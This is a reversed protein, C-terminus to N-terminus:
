HKVAALISKVAIFLHFFVVGVPKYGCDTWRFSQVCVDTADKMLSRRRRRM